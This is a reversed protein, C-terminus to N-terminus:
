VVGSNRSVCVEKRALMPGDCVGVVIRETALDASAQVSSLMLSVLHNKKSVSSLSLATHLM